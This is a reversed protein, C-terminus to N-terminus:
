PLARCAAKPPSKPAYPKGNFTISGGDPREAGSLVKMLTSKGAGNEGILAHIEGRAVELNVGKLAKVPGFSKTINELVLLPANM